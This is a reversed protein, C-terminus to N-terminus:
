NDKTLIYNALLDAGLVGEDLEVYTAFNAKDQETMDQYTFTDGKEGRAGKMGQVGVDTFTLLNQPTETLTIITENPEIVSINVELTDAIEINSSEVDIFTNM